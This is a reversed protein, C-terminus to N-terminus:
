GRRLHQGPLRATEECVGNEVVLIRSAWLLQVLDDVSSLQEEGHEEVRYASIRRFNPVHELLDDQSKNIMTWIWILMKM